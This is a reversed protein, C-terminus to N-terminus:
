NDLAGHEIWAIIAATEEAGLCGGPPPTRPCGVPMRQTRDPIGKGRIKRALYSKAASGPDVLMMSPVNSSPVGVVASWAAGADLPPSAVPNEGGHCGATACRATLIPQVVGAFSPGSRARDAVVDLRAVADAAVPEIPTLDGPAFAGADVAKRLLTGLRALTRRARAYAKAPDAATAGRAIAEEVKDLLRLMRARVNAGRRAAPTAGVLGTRVTALRCSVAAAGPPLAHVCGMDSCGDDTCPDGDDCRGLGAAACGSPPLTTTSTTGPITTTSGADPLTTTTAVVVNTVAATYVPSTAYKGSELRFSLHWTGVAGAPPTLFWQPHQHLYPATGIRVRDGSARLTKGNLVVHVEPDITVVEMTVTAGDQLRFLSAPPDDAVLGNFAPDLGGFTSGDGQAVTPFARAFDYSLVLAGGGDESSAIWMHEHGRAVAATAVMWVAVFGRWSRARCM